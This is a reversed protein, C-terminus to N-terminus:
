WDGAKTSDEELVKRVLKTCDLKQSEIFEAASSMKRLSDCIEKPEEGPNINRYSPYYLMDRFFRVSNKFEKEKSQISNHM